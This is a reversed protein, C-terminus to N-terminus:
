GGQDLAAYFREVVLEATSKPVLLRSVNLASLSARNARRNGALPVEAYVPQLGSKRRRGMTATEADSGSRQRRFTTRQRCAMELNAPIDSVVVPLSWSM